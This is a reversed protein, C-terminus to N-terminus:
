QNEDTHMGPYLKRVCEPCIGHSFKADSRDSIYQEIQNWYGEDDRIKKCSACIPLIGRLTKIEETAAHLKSITEEKESILLFIDRVYRSMPRYVFFYIILTQLIIILSHELLILDAYSTRRQHSIVMDASASLLTMLIIVVLTHILPKRLFEKEKM